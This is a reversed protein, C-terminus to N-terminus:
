VIKSPISKHNSDGGDVVNPCSDNLRPLTKDDIWDFVLGNDEAWEFPLNQISDHSLDVLYKLKNKFNM